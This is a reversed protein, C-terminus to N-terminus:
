DLRQGINLSWVKGEIEIRVWVCVLLRVLGEGETVMSAEVDIAVLGSEM